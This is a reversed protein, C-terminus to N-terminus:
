GDVYDILNNIIGSDNLTEDEILRLSNARQSFAVSRANDPSQKYCIFVAIQLTCIYVATVYRVVGYGRSELSGLAHSVGQVYKGKTEEILMMEETFLLNSILVASTLSM